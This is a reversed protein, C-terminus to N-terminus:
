GRLLIRRSEPNLYYAMNPEEFLSRYARERAVQGKAGRFDEGCILWIGTNHAIWKPFERLQSDEFHISGKRLVKFEVWRPSYKPHMCYADPVGSQFENGHMKKVYWGYKHTLMTTFPEGILETEKQTAM